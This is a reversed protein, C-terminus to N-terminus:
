PLEENKVRGSFEEFSRGFAQRLYQRAARMSLKGNVPDGRAANMSCDSSGNAHWIEALEGGLRRVYPDQAADSQVSNIVRTAKLAM